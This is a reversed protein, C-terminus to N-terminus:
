PQRVYLRQRLVAPEGPLSTVVASDSAVEIGEADHIRTIVDIAGATHSDNEITTAIEVAALSADADPTTIRVGDLAIHILEGVVLHVDRYIGAGTYWRSDQHARCEVRVENDAGYLLVNDIPLAFGSYGFPRQGVFDGNVYVMADRYVGEFELWLRRGCHEEPVTFTKKYEFVGGPFFGVAGSETASREAGILADHPLTVDQFSPAMGGMELYRSVKPRTQWGENFPIRFM